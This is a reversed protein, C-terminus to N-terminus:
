QELGLLQFRGGNRGTRLTTEFRADGELAAEVRLTFRGPATERLDRVSFTAAGFRSLVPPDPLIARLQAAVPRDRPLRDLLDPHLWGRLTADDDALVGAALGRLLAAVAAADPPSDARPWFAWAAVLGLALTAAALLSVRGRRDM